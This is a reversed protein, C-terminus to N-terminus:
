KEGDEKWLIEYEKRRTIEEYKRITEENWKIREKVGKGEKRKQKRIKYLKSYLSM